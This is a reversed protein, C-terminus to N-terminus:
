PPAARRQKKRKNQKRKRAKDWQSQLVSPALERPVQAGGRVPGWAQKILWELRQSMQRRAIERNQARSRTAQCTIRTGTPEHVLEVNTSLKNIAQGGPGRGRIFRERLDSEDLTIPRKKSGDRAFEYAGAQFWDPLTGPPVRAPPKDAPSDAHAEYDTDTDISAPILTAVYLGVHDELWRLMEDAGQELSPWEYRDVDDEDRQAEIRHMEFWPVQRAEREALASATWVVRAPFFPEFRFEPLAEPGLLHPYDAAARAMSLPPDVLQLASLPHSSAYKEAVACVAGAATLAPPFPPVGVQPPPHRLLRVM